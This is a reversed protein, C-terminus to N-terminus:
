LASNPIISDNRRANQLTKGKIGHFRTTTGASLQGPVVEISDELNTTTAVTLLSAVM